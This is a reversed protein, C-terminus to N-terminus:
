PSKGIMEILQFVDGDSIMEAITKKFKKHYGLSQRIERELTALDRYFPSRDIRQYPLRKLQREEEFKICGPGEEKQGDPRWLEYPLGHLRCILTRFPYLICHEDVNLPCLYNERRHNPDGMRKAREFVEEVETKCLTSLGQVLYLSEAITFHYFYTRCCNDRCGICDFGYFVASDRYARDM